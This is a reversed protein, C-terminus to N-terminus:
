AVSVLTDELLVIIRCLLEDAVEFFARDIEDTAMGVALEPAAKAVPEREIAAPLGIADRRLIQDARRKEVIGHLEHAPDGVRQLPGVVHVIVGGEGLFDLLREAAAEQGPVIKEDALRLGTVHQRKLEAKQRLVAPGGDDLQEGIVDLGLAIMERGAEDPRRIHRMDQGRGPMEVHGVREQQLLSERGPKVGHGLARGGDPLPPVAPRLFFTELIRPHIREVMVGVARDALPEIGGDGTEADVRALRAVLVADDARLRAAPQGARRRLQLGEEAFEGAAPRHLVAFKVQLEDHRRVRHRRKM